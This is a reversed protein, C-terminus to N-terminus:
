GGWVYKEYIQPYVTRVTVANSNICHLCLKNLILLSRLVYTKNIDTAPKSYSAGRSPIRKLLLNQSFYNGAVRINLITKV